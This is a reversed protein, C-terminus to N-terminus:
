SRSARGKRVFSMSLLVIIMVFAAPLGWYPVAAVLPWAGSGFDQQQMGVATGIIIAFFCIISAAALGLATFALIRDVRRVPVDPEPSKMTM